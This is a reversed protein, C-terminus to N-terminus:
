DEDPLATKINLELLQDTDIASPSNTMVDIASGNKPFAIVERINPENQLVMFLRDLGFACGGHPPAGYKFANIMAGFNENVYDESFGLNSFAKYMIEPNHNRIAGSCIEYGNAVMDYQDAAIELLAAEDAENLSELGGKPMSFPNHGFDLKQTSENLEYFPFDVVWCLAVANQDIIGFHEAFKIRLAGLVKNVVKLKDSGFFLACNNSAGTKSIISKIEEDSFFKLIPSSPEGDKITIYALGGAGNNKAIETFTDIQSRSLEQGGEVCIAKVSGGDDLVNKFVGFSSDKLEESLDILKMDYRLDPKDTGYSDMAESYNIRPIEKNQLTKGSWEVLQTILPEITTLVEEGNTAFAIELDLQYFEGPHRDARPDEDRFCPAVQYYRPVGGVMLLQKFQQPAQPLAYFKGPHLRSPVLYDRAGEPSSNALIPTVIETFDKGRMYSHILGNFESRKKLMSQMKERRLDLFRYKLRVEEGTKDDDLQFPIPESKNLIELESVKIEIGGTEINPNKLGDSREIIQGTAKIVYEDRVSEAITFIDKEEPTCTLQVIGSEDRLDIFILGGHDRRSKVWGMLVAEDGINKITNKTLIREMFNIIVSVLLYLM